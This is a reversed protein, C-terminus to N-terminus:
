VCHHVGRPCTWPSSRTHRAARAWRILCRDPQRQASPRSRRDGALPVALLETKMTKFDEPSIVGKDRLDGLRELQTFIEDSSPKSAAPPPPAAQQQGYNIHQTNRAQQEALRM